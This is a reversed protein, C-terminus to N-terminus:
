VLKYNKHIDNIKNWLEKIPLKIIKQGPESILLKIAFIRLKILGDTTNLEYKNEASGTCRCAGKYKWGLKLLEEKIKENIKVEEVDKQQVIKGSRNGMTVTIIRNM